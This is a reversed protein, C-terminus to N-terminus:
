DNATITGTFAKLDTMGATLGSIHIKLEGTAFNNSVLTLTYATTGAKLIQYSMVFNSGIRYAYVVYTVDNGVAPKTGIEKKTYTAQSTGAAVKDNQTANVIGGWINGDNPNFDFYGDNWGTIDSLLMEFAATHLESTGCAFTFKVLFDGSVTVDASPSNWWDGTGFGGTVNGKDATALADLAANDVAGCVECVYNSDYSHDHPAETVVPATTSIKVDSSAGNDQAWGIVYSEATMNKITVAFAYVTAGQASSLSLNITLVGDDSLAVQVRLKANNAKYTQLNAANGTTCTSTIKYTVNNVVIDREECFGVWAWPFVAMGDPRVFFANAADPANIRAVVGDYVNTGVNTVTAELTVKGGKVLTTEKVAGDWVPLATLTEETTSLAKGEFHGTVDISPCSGDATIRFGLETKTTDLLKIAYIIDYSYGEHDGSLSTITCRVNVVDATIWYAEVRWLCDKAIDKFVPVWDQIDVVQNAPDKIQLLTSISEGAPNAVPDAPAIWQSFVNGTGFSWGYNDLRGTYGDTLEWNITNWADTMPSTQKGYVVIRNGRTLLTESRYADTWAALNDFHADKILTAGCKSCTTGSENAHDCVSGCGTCIGDDYSHQHNLDSDCIDCVGDNDADVHQHNPNFIGCITCEDTEPDWNHALGGHATDGHNPNLEGCGCRDTTTSYNHTHVPYYDKEIVYSNYRALAQEDTYVKMEVLANTAGTLGSGIILGHAAVDKLFEEVFSAVTPAPDIAAQGAGLNFETAAAYAFVKVGDKYYTVGGTKSLSITVYSAGNLYLNWVSGGILEDGAPFKNYGKFKAAADGTANWPDLNPLTVILNNSTKLAIAGWDSDGVTAWFSVTLGADALTGEEVEFLGAPITANKANGSKLIAGCESCIFCGNQDSGYTHAPVVEFGWYFAEDAEHKAKMGAHDCTHESVTKVMGGTADKETIGRNGAVAYFKTGGDIMVGYAANEAIGLGALEELTIVIATVTKGNMTVTKVVAAKTGVNSDVFKNNAYGFNYVGVATMDTAAKGANVIVPLSSVEAKDSILTLTGGVAVIYWGTSEIQRALGELTNPYVSIRTLDAGGENKLTIVTEAVDVAYDKVGAYKITVKKAAADYKTVSFLSEGIKVPASDSASGLASLAVSDAGIALTAKAADFSGSFTLTFTDGVLKLDAKDATVKVDSLLVKSLDVVIDNQVTNGDFNVFDIVAGTVGASLPLYVSLKTRANDLTATANEFVNGDAKRVIIQGDVIPQSFTVDFATYYDNGSKPANGDLVVKNGNRSFTMDTPATHTGVTAWAFETITSNSVNGKVHKCAGEVGISAGNNDYRVNVNISPTKQVVTMTVTYRFYPTQTVEQEAKWLSVTVTVKGDVYSAYAKFKGSKKADLYDSEADIPTGDIGNPVGNCTNSPTTNSDLTIQADGGSERAYFGDNRVRVWFADEGDANRVNVELGQYAETHAVDTYQGSVEVFEGDRLVNKNDNENATLTVEGLTSACLDCVGDSDGDVHNGGAAAAKAYFVVKNDKKVAWAYLGEQQCSGEIGIAVECEEATVAVSTITTGSVKNIATPKANGDFADGNNFDFYYDGSVGLDATRVSIVVFAGKDTDRSDGYTGLLTVFGTVGAPANVFLLSGNMVKYNITLLGNKAFTELDGNNLNLKISGGIADDKLDALEVARVISLTGNASAYAYHGDFGTVKGQYDGSLAMAYDVDDVVTDGKATLQFHAPAYNSLNTLGAVTVKVTLVKGELKAATFTYQDVPLTGGNAVSSIINAVPIPNAGATLTLDAATVDGSMTYTLTVNGGNFLDLGNTEVKSDIGFGKLASLDLVIPTGQAGTVTYKGAATLAIVLYLDNVDNDVDEVVAAHPVETTGSMVKLNETTFKTGLKAGNLRLAVYKTATGVNGIADKQAVTLTQVYGEGALTLVVNRATTDFSFNLAGVKGNNAFAVDSVTVDAGLASVVKNPLVTIDSEPLLQVFTQGGKVIHIKYIAGAKLNNSGLSAWKSEDLSELETKNGALATRDLEGTYFYVQSNAVQLPNETDGTQEYKVTVNLTSADFATNEAYIKAGNNGKYSFGGEKPTRKTTIISKTITMDNYDGHIITDYYGVKSDPVKIYAKLTSAGISYTIEIVGDERYNWTYEYDVETLYATGSRMVTGSSYVWWDKVNADSWDTPIQGHVYGTAASGPTTTESEEPHSGFNRWDTTSEYFGGMIGGLRNKTGQGIGNYLVWGEQRVIVSVGGMYNPHDSNQVDTNYRDAIGLSPSNWQEQQHKWPGAPATDTGEATTKAKGRITITMGPELQGATLTPVEQGNVSGFKSIASNTKKNTYAETETWGAADKASSYDSPYIGDHFTGFHMVVDEDREEQRARCGEYQCVKVGNTVAGWNHSIVVTFTASLSDDSKLTVTVLYEGVEHFGIKDEGVVNCADLGLETEGGEFDTALVKLEARKTDYVTKEDSDTMEITKTSLAISYYEGDGTDGPGPGPPTEKGGCAFLGLSMLVAFLLILVTKLKKM